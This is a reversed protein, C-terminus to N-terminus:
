FSAPASLLVAALLRNFKDTSVPHALFKDMDVRHVVVFDRMPDILVFQGYNGRASFVAGPFRQQFHWGNQGVWWLYGYGVGPSTDSYSTTSERVWKESVIQTENWRGNRAMLLGVRALDRASLRMVYAPHDSAREFVSATDKGPLFDEFGLPRALEQDLAQFVTRGTLQQFISGM